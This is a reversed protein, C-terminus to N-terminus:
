CGPGAAFLGIFYLSGILALYQEYAWSAFAFYELNKKALLSNQPNPLRKPAMFPIKLCARNSVCLFFGRVPCAVPFDAAM